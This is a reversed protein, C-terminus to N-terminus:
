FLGNVGGAPDVGIDPIDAIMAETTLLLSAVSAANQLASRTVKTPDIIGMAIMDGYEDTRANYGYSGEGSAVNGLVVAPEVGANEAIRRLPEEIAKRVINVGFREDDAVVLDDLVAGARILAVGGGPLIGESVAAKTAHLADEVRAKKEKMEIETAAGVKIVAVGGALKALREQLKEADYESSASEIQGKIQNIRTTIADDEGGGNIILTNDKTIIVREASGLHTLEVAELKLGLTATIYEAGTLTAIDSLMAKRRDGFGPAKVAVSNLTGRMKNVVLVSLAEGDVDEALILLPKGEQAVMGGLKLVDQAASIKKECVLILPNELVAEMRDTDTVFYPSLYGRDFQMGEVIDLVTDLGKNEEVTIVGEKGVKDM